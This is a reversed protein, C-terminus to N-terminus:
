TLISLFVNLASLTVTTYGNQMNYLLYRPKAYQVNLCLHQPYITLLTHLTILSVVRAKYVFRLFMHYLLLGYQLPMEVVMFNWSCGRKQRNNSCKSGLYDMHCEDRQYLCNFFLFDKYFQIATVSLGVTYTSM